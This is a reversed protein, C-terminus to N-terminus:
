ITGDSGYSLQWFGYASAARAEVSYLYKRRMFVNESNMDTMSVFVPKKREQIIFPKIAKSTVHLFWATTSTLRPNVKLKFQGKYPNQSGDELKDHEALIRGVAELAPPVELTDPMLGLPRGGDRTFSMIATRAVGISAKAAAPTAASLAKTGKNSISIEKGAKNEVPHNTDYFPQGDFCDNIFAGNKADADLDDYLEAASEGAMGAQIVTGSLAGDEIDNRDVEITAEYDDNSVVYKHAKLANIVKDGFWKIMGTFGTLWKYDNESGTSTVLMTTDSWQGTVNDFAKQFTTKINKTLDSLASANIILGAMGIMGLGSDDLMLQYPQDGVILLESPTVGSAFAAACLPFAMLVMLIKFIKSKM